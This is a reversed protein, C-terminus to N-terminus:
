GGASTNIRYVVSRGATGEQSVKGGAELEDMYRVVSASSIDALEAIDENKMTGREGLAALIKQKAEDKRVQQRKRFEEIGNGCRETEKLERRLREAERGLAAIRRRFFLWAVLSGVQGGYSM